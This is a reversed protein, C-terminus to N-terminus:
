CNKRKTVSTRKNNAIGLVAAFLPVPELWDIFSLNLVPDGQARLRCVGGLDRSSEGCSRLVEPSHFV